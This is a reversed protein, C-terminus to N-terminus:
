REVEHARECISALAASEGSFLDDLSDWERDVAGLM